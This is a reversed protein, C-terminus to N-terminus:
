RLFDILSPYVIRAGTALAAQYANEQMMFETIAEAIDIDEVKSRLERLYIQESEISGETTLM